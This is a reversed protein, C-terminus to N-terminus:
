RHLEMSLKLLDDFHLSFVLSVVVLGLSFGFDFAYFDTRIDFTIGHTIFTTCV